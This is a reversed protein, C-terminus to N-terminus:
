VIERNRVAPFCSTLLTISYTNLKYKLHKVTNIAKNQASGGVM